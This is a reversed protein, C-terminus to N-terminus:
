VGWGEVGVVGNYVGIDVFDDFGVGVFESFVVEDSGKNVNSFVSDYWVGFSFYDVFNLVRVVEVKIM